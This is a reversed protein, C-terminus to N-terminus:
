SSSGCATCVCCNERRLPYVRGRTASAADRRCELRGCCLPTQPRRGLLGVVSGPSRRIRHPDLRGALDEPRVLDSRGM